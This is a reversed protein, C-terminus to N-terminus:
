LGAKRPAALGQTEAVRLARANTIVMGDDIWRPVPVKL